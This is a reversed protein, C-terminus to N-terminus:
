FTAKFTHMMYLLNWRDRKQYHGAAGIYTISYAKKESLFVYVVIVSPTDGEASLVTKWGPRGSIKIAVSEIVKVNPFIETMQLGAVRAYEEVSVADAPVDNVTLAVNELFIDLPTEQPSVFAVLAQPQPHVVVKWASPYALSFRDEFSRYNKFMISLFVFVSLGAFLLVGLISFLVIKFIGVPKDKVIGEGNRNVMQDAGFANRALAM